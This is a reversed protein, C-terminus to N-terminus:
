PFSLAMFTFILIVKTQYTEVPPEVYTEDLSTFHEIDTFRNVKFTHKADFPHNNMTSLALNADEVSRFDVFGFGKSKGTTTDWPIYIDEPKIAVSKRGIEKALKALLKELKANDIVPIGDIVLTNDFGEDYSVSFRKEIDSYDIDDIENDNTATPM